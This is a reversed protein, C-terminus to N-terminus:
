EAPLANLTYYAVAHLLPEGAANRVGDLKLDHVFPTRLGSVKLRVSMGDDAVEASTIICEKRDIEPSGYKEFREHTFSNMAYSAVDGATAPDVPQTFTLTFGDPEAKMQLVEFPVVGTWVLRQVGYPRNGISWWGRNTMGVFMSGDPAFALRNVGCDTGTRFPFCAGQYEGNVKELYVRMVIASYQDGVFLQNTFPGFKGGTTDCVIDSASRGMRDYPFWIAPQMFDQEGRPSRMKAQAYWRDGAPHGHWSGPKLHALKNTGVWDGQNDTYFMEGDANTGLGNPSRLGGCVPTISGDEPNVILAWGRWPVTSKGLGGCFGVNLSVWIRGQGDFKPGFGFEHYNGSVGWQDSVTEFVDARDDGDLDTMRTLEGRQVTWLSGDRWQLGLPEHLGSAFRIYRQNVPPDEYANDIIWIEGRRTAVAPRGDDMVCLGGVELVVEPPEFFSLLRYYKAEPTLPFDINLHYDLRAAIQPDIRPQIQFEWDGVGQTVKALLTNRGKRIPLSIMHSDPDLGRPVDADIVLRGNFWMKLGDDSGVRVNWHGDSEAIAERYVYGIAYTNLQPSNFVDLKIKSWDTQNLQRWRVETGHKGSYTAALDVALEPPYVVSHKTFGSDDFPAAVHWPGWEIASMYQALTAQRSAERTEKRIYNFEVPAQQAFVGRPLAMLLALVIWRRVGRLSARMDRSERVCPRSDFACTCSQHRGGMIRTKAIKVM